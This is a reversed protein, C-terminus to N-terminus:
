ICCRYVCIPTNLYHVDVIFM